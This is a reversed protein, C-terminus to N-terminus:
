LLSHVTPLLDSPAIDLPTLAGLRGQAVLRPLAKAYALMIAATLDPNSDTKLTLALSTRETEYAGLSAAAIVEGRHPLRTHERLFKEEPLFHVEVEYGRFYGEITPILTRLRTCEEETDRELTLYCIRRHRETDSLRAGQRAAVVAEPRPVTYEVAHKVGSLRRLVESHGQSVGRGWFTNVAATPFLASFTARMLSLLGPDWGAGVIALHGSRIGAEHCARKHRDLDRHADYCDVTHFDSLLRPAERPVRDGSGHALLLVDLSGRLASLATDPYVPTNLFPQIREPDRSTIIATAHIERDRAAAIELARGLNGYGLIGIRM